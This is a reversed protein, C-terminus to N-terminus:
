IFALHLYVRILVLERTHLCICLLSVLLCSWVTGGIRATCILTRRIGLRERAGHPTVCMDRDLAGECERETDCLGSVYM